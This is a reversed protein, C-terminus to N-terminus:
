KRIFALIESRVKELENVNRINIVEGNKLTINIKGFSYKVGRSSKTKIIVNSIANREIEITKFTKYIYLKNDDRNILVMPQFIHRIFFFLFYLFIAIAIYRTLLNDFRLILLIIMMIMGSIWTILSFNSKKAILVKEMYGGSSYNNYWLYKQKEM